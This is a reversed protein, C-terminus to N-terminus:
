RYLVAERLLMRAERHAPFTRAVLGWLEPGHNPHVLHALEHVVVYDRVWVPVRMLQLNFSLTGSSSCSGWRTAQNRIQIRTPQVGMQNAWRDVRDALDSAAQSRMADIEAASPAPGSASEREAIRRKARDIWDAREDLFRDITHRGMSHPARVVVRGASAVEIALTKRRSRRIEIEPIQRDGCDRM